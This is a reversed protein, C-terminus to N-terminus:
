NRPVVRIEVRRNPALCDILAQGKETKCEVVPEISGRGIATIQEAPVGRQILYDRVANARRTSLALNSKHNGIRDSYGIVHITNLSDNALAKNALADLEGRGTESLNSLDAKGFAFLSDASLKQVYPLSANDQATSSDKNNRTNKQQSSCASLALVLTCAAVSAFISRNM